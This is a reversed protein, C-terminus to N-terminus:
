VLMLMNKQLPMRIIILGMSKAKLVLSVTEPNAGLILIKKNEM